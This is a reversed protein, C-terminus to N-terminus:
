RRSSSRRERRAGAGAAPLVAVQGGRDADGGAYAPRRHGSRGGGGARRPLPFLRFTTTFSTSDTVAGDGHRPAASGSPPKVEVRKRRVRGGSRGAGARSGRGCRPMSAARACCSPTPAANPSGATRRPRRDPRRRGRDVPPPRHGHTTRGAAVDNLTEQIAEETRSDLAWTAEDLILIPPDEAAHPRDRGAAERRGVAQARTRRGHNM